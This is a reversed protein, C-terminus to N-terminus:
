QKAWLEILHLVTEAAKVMAPVAAWELRSHYNHVGTFINPTPIGMESLRAGDTGGRIVRPRPDLGTRRVAELLRDAVREVDHGGVDVRAGVARLEAGRAATRADAHVDSVYVEGGRELVLRAAAMGSAGLGIVAVKVGSLDRTGSEASM